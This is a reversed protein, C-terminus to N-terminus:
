KKDKELYGLKILDAKTVKNKAEILKALDKIENFRDSHFNKEFWKKTVEKVTPEFIKDCAECYYCDSFLLSSPVRIWNHGRPCYKDNLDYTVAM